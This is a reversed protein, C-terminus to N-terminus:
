RLFELPVPDLAPDGMLLTVKLFQKSTKKKNKCWQAALLIIWAIEWNDLKNHNNLKKGLEKSVMEVLLYPSSM